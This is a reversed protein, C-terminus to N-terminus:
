KTIHVINVKSQNLEKRITIVQYFLMSLIILGILGFIIKKKIKSM